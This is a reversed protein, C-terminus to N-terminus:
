LCALGRKGRLSIKGFVRLLVLMPLSLVVVLDAGAAVVGCALGFAVLSRRLGAAGPLGPSESRTLIACRDRTLRLNGITRLLWKRVVQPVPPLPGERKWRREALRLRGRRGAWSGVSDRFSWFGRRKRRSRCQVNDALPFLQTALRPSAFTFRPFPHESFEFVFFTQFPLHYAYMISSNFPILFLHAKQFLEVSFFFFSFTMHHLVRGCPRVRSPSKSVASTRLHSEIVGVSVRKICLM